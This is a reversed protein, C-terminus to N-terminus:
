KAVWLFNEVYYAYQRVSFGVDLLARHPKYDPEQAIWHDYIRRNHRRALQKLTSVDVNRHHFWNELSPMEQELMKRDFNITSGCMEYTNPERLLHHYELWQLANDVVSELEFSPMDPDEIYATWEDLFGSDEHMKKVFDSMERLAKYTLIDKCFSQWVDVLVGDDDTLAMALELIKSEGKKSLGTTECDVWVMTPKAHENYELGVSAAYDEISWDSDHITTFKSM